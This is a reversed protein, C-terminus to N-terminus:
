KIVSLASRAMLHLDPPSLHLGISSLSLTQMKGTSFYHMAQTVWVRDWVGPGWQLAGQM